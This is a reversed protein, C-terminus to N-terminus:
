RKDTPVQIFPIANSGTFQPLVGNWKNLANWQLLNANLSEAQLRNAEAQAKAHILIADAEAQAKLVTSKAQGESTAITQKAEAESQVIKNKAEIAKQMSEIVANISNHIRQDMRAEGNWSVSEVLIGVRGLDKNLKETVASLLDGKKAGVIDMAPMRGAMENFADRVQNRMFVDRIHDADQKFEVFLHPVKEYVFRYSIGIDVNLTAGEISNFTISEDSKSGEHTSRSWTHNQRFTPFSYVDETFPNYWVRGTSIPFDSVGRQSGYQNVVIGAYGPEVKTCGIATAVAFVMLMLGAFRKM